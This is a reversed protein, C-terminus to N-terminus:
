RGESYLAEIQVGTLATDYVRFKSMQGDLWKNGTASQSTRDVGITGYLPNSFGNFSQSVTADLQGNIYIKLQSSTLTVAIHTWINAVLDTNGRAINIHGTSGFVMLKNNTNSRSLGILNVNNSTYDHFYLHRTELLNDLKIWYEFTCNNFTSAPITNGSNLSVEDNSGDFTFYGGSNWTPKKSTTGGGLLGDYGNPYNPKTFNYNQRVQAQTLISSYIRVQSIKGHFFKPTQADHRGISISQNGANNPTVTTSVTNDLEGNLYLKVEGSSRTVLVHYWKDQVLVTSGLHYHSVSGVKELLRLKKSANEISFVISRALDSTGYKSLIQLNLHNINSTNVWAEITYNKASFDVPTTSTSPISVYDNIGDFNLWNGLESDFTAGTITGNNSNSSSDTWTSPTNSYGAEGYEPFSDADLNLELDTDPILSTENTNKAVAYYIATVGSQNFSVGTGGFSFGDNEFVIPSTASTEIADSNASLYKNLPTRKNDVITWGGTSSARKIMIFAPEFGTYVKNGAVGTGVFSGVKSVGRKSAFCYAIMSSSNYNAGMTNFITSTPPQVFTHNTKLATTNLKLYDWSGDIASTDVMWDVSSILTKRIIMEPVADLGHGIDMDSGDGSWSVISFGLDNNASVQSDIDGEQNLVAAGGAKFCWAVYDSGSTNTREGTGQVTFGGDVITSNTVGSSTTTGEAQQENSALNKYTNSGNGRVTDVIYHDATAIDIRKIWVLDPQFGVGTIPNSVGTGTYTVTNFHESVDTTPTYEHNTIDIWEDGDGDYSDVDNADLHLILGEEGANGDAAAVATDILRENIAM